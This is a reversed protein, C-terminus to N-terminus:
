ELLLEDPVSNLPNWKESSEDTASESAAKDSDRPVPIDQPERDVGSLLEPNEFPSLDGCPWSDGPQRYGICCCGAGYESDSGDCCGGGGLGERRVTGGEPAARWRLPAERRV